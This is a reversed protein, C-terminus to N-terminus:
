SAEKAIRVRIVFVIGLGYNWTAADDDGWVARINGLPVRELLRSELREGHLVASAIKGKAGLSKTAKEVDDDHSYAFNAAARASFVIPQPVIIAGAVSARQDGM